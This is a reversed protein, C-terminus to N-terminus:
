QSVWQQLVTSTVAGSIRKIETNGELLVMTPVSRIGFDQAIEPNVDIDVIEIPINLNTNEITKALAKCPQCWDATFRIIRM